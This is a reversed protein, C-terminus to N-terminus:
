GLVEAVANSVARGLQDLPLMTSVAGLARAANPMGFVACTAEDQALTRGGRDHMARLGRAGDEGMGTM